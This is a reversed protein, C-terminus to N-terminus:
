AAPAGGLGFFCGDHRFDRDRGLVDRRRAIFRGALFGRGVLGGYSRAAGGSVVASSAGTSFGTTLVALFSGAALIM